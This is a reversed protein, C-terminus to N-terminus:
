PWEPAPGDDRVFHKDIEADGEVALVRGVLRQRDESLRSMLVYQAVGDPHKTIRYRTRPDVYIQKCYAIPEGVRAVVTRFDNPQLKEHNPDGDIHYVGYPVWEDAGYRCTYKMYLSLDDAHDIRVRYQM